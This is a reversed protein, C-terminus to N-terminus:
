PQVPVDLPQRRLRNFLEKFVGNVIMVGALILTCGAYANWQLQENLVMVGLIVGVVPIMYTVTSVYTASAAKLLRYYVVFAIATGFVALVVLSGLAAWSPLSMQFPQDILLSLPLVYLTALSLQATPAVLPPLGRLHLRTYVIAIGYCAAATAIALLGWTTAHFGELISPSILVLLGGFGILVGALKGPTIRDDAIFMHALIITFLPTTGNLIAALASDIHQEGWNFLTFPIANHVLAVLALHGWIPGFQPLRRGQRYLLALLIVAAIGVRGLMMTFPPIEEVAIKIFIFSPGWLAALSLLLLFNRLVM